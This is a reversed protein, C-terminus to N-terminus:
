GLTWPRYIDAPVTPTEERLLHPLDPGSRSAGSGRSHLTAWVFLGPLCATVSADDACRDGHLSGRRTSIMMKITIMRSKSSAYQTADALSPPPEDLEGVVAGGVDTVVEAVVVDGDADVVVPGGVVVVPGGVVVVVVVV